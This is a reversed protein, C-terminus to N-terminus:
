TRKAAQCIADIVSLKATRHYRMLATGTVDCKMSQVPSGLEVQALSWAVHIGALLTLNLLVFHLKFITTVPDLQIRPKSRLTADHLRRARFPHTLNVTYKFNIQIYEYSM